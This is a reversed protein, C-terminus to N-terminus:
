HMRSKRMTNGDDGAVDHERIEFKGNLQQCHHLESQMLSEWPLQRQREVMRRYVKNRRPELGRQEFEAEILNHQTSM